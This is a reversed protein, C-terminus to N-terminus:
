QNLLRSVVDSMAVSTQNGTAMEKWQVCGQAVEDEGIVMVVPAGSRDAAKMAGKLGREGFAMDASVRAARLETLLAAAVHRAGSGIPVVFVEVRADSALTMGEAECALM